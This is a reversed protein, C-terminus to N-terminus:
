YKACVQPLIFSAYGDPAGFRIQGSFDADIGTSCNLGNSLSAQAVDVHAALGQGAEILEYGKPSKVFLKTAHKLELRAIRHSVTASNSL